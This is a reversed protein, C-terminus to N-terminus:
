FFLSLDKALNFRLCAHCKFEINLKTRTQHEVRCSSFAINGTKLFAGIHTQIRLATIHLSPRFNHYERQCSGGNTPDGYYGSICTDCNKGSTLNECKECISENICKSHGNCQCAVFVACLFKMDMSSFSSLERRLFGCVCVIHLIYSLHLVRICARSGWERCKHTM